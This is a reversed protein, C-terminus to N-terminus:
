ELEAAFFRASLEQGTAEAVFEPWKHTKGPGFVKDHLFEGFDRRGNFSLTATPGVHKAQDALTARLQAALLEGLQYNHYYVPAITFHPKAAWDPERRNPPRRLYQFREVHDWWLTDLDQEPNEYLAKEFHLMVLAWRCFILQERRRQERIADSVAAIRAPDAGAYHVLWSPTKALAGFLMAVGETTFAHNAARLNFPLARDLHKDYVAHGLEHLMTDMWEATPRLNALVRVDGKRDMDECFAHQDKGDREYLDSREVIDEAPLGIDALFRLALAAIDEKQRQRYFEDLDVAEAPPAAQFFPNDYHWPMIQQPAIGFKAALEGDLESKMRRFPENTLQELEAFIRLLYDPDHEQLRIKMDWYNAFGLQTAARNRVKALEILDPGVAGGVQKLAEWIAQRRDSDREAALLDLLENNSYSKGDLEGRFTNFTQGISASRNAMDELLETPLQNGKFSLEALQLARLQLPTLATPTALLQQIERYRDPDSHLQNLALEAQAHAAFAEDSGTTAADWETLTWQHWLRDYEALYSELFREARARMESDDKTGTTQDDSDSSCGAIIVVLTFVWFALRCPDNRM